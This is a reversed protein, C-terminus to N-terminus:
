REKLILDVIDDALMIGSKYLLQTGENKFILTTPVQEVMFRYVLSECLTSDIDLISINTLREHVEGLEFEMIQCSDCYTSGFKLIVTNEKAFEAAIIADFNKENVHIFPM